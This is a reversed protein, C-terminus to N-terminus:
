LWLLLDMGVGQDTTSDHVVRAGCVGGGSVGLFVPVSNLLHWLLFVTMAGEAVSLTVILQGAWVEATGM